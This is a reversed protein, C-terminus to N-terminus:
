KSLHWKKYVELCKSQKKQLIDDANFQEIWFDVDLTNKCEFFENLNKVTVKHKVNEAFWLKLELIKRDLYNSPQPLEKINLINNERWQKEIKKRMILVLVADLYKNERELNLQERTIETNCNPCKLEWAQLLFNCKKCELLNSPSLPPSDLSWNIHRDPLGHMLFNETHDLFIVDKRGESVRLGRGCWQRFNALSKTKRLMMVCEIDPFDVGEGLMDVHCIIKIQKVSFLYIIRQVQTASMRSHIASSSIGCKKFHESTKIAIDISVCFCITQRDRANKNWNYIADGAMEYIVKGTEKCLSSYTYDHEGFDLQESDLREPMSYAKFDSLYGWKILTRVSDQKLHEAQILGDYLGGKGSELSQNDGRCPTATFGILKSNQYIEKLKGWQNKELVHHGEDILILWNLEPNPLEMGRKFRSLLSQISSVYTNSKRIYEKGLKRHELICQRKTVKSCITDHYIGSKALERSLQKILINRHAVVIVLDSDKAIAALTRTKGSGTDSQILPNGVFSLAKEKQEQQYDRLALM